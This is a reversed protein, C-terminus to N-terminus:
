SGLSWRPLVHRGCCPSCKVHEAGTAFVPSVEMAVSCDGFTVLYCRDLIGSLPLPTEISSVLIFLFWRYSDGALRLLIVTLGTFCKINSSTVAKLQTMIFFTPFVSTKQRIPSMLKARAVDTPWFTSSRKWVQELLWFCIQASLQSWPNHSTVRKIETM